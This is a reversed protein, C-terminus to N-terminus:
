IHILSLRQGSRQWSGTPLRKKADRWFVLEREVRQVLPGVAATDGIAGLAACARPGLPGDLHSVLLPIAARGCSRLVDFVERAAFRDNANVYTAVGALRQEVDATARLRALTSRMEVLHRVRARLAQESLGLSGILAGARSGRGIMGYAKGGEIWCVSDSVLTSEGAWTKSSPDHKLDLFLVMRAGSVRLGKHVRRSAALASESLKPLRLKDGSAFSGAWTEIATLLGDIVQGETALVVHTAGWTNEDLDFRPAAGAKCVSGGLLLVCAIAAFSVRRRM